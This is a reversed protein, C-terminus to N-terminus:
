ALYRSFEDVRSGCTLAERLPYTLTKEKRVKGEIPMNSNKERRVTGGRPLTLTKETRVKGKIPM